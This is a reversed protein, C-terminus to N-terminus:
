NDLLKNGDTCFELDGLPRCPPSLRANLYDAHTATAPQDMPSPRALSSRTM